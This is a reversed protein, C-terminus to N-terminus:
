AVSQIPALVAWHRAGDLWLQGDPIYALLRKARWKPRLRRAIVRYQGTEPSGVLDGVQANNWLVPSDAAPQGEAILVSDMATLAQRAARPLAGNDANTSGYCAADLLRYAHALKHLPSIAKPRYPQFGFSEVVYLTGDETALLDGVSTSRLHPMVAPDNFWSDRLYGHQTWAYAAGLM